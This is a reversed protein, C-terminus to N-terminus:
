RARHEGCYWNSLVSPFTSYGASMIKWVPPGPTPDLASTVPGFVALRPETISVPPFRRCHGGSIIVEGDTDLATEQPLAEPKVDPAVYWCCSKCKM